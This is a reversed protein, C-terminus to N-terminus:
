SKKNVFTDTYIQLYIMNEYSPSFVLNQLTCHFISLCSYCSALLLVLNYGITEQLVEDYGNDIVLCHVKRFRLDKCKFDQKLVFHDVLKKKIKNTISTERKHINVSFCQGDPNTIRLNENM